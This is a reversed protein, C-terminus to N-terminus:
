HCSQADKLKRADERQGFDADSEMITDLLACADDKRGQKVRGLALHYQIEPEDPALATAEELLKIGQELGAPSSVLVWGYTDKVVAANPALEYARKAEAMARPDGVSQYLWALNNLIMPNAGDQEKLKQHHAISKQLEGASLYASALIRRIQQDAPTRSLWDELVRFGDAQRKLEGYGYYLRLASDASNIKKEAGRFAEIAKDPKGTKGLVHGILLDGM